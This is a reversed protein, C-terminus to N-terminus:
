ARELIGAARERAVEIWEQKLGTPTVKLRERLFKVPGNTGADTLPEIRLTHREISGEPHGEQPDAQHHWYCLLILQSAHSVTGHDGGMGKARMHAVELARADKRHRCHPWRCGRCAGMDRVRAKQKEDDEFGKLERKTADREAKYAGRPPKPQANPLGM